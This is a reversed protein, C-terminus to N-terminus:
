VHGKYLHVEGIGELDDAKEFYEQAKDYMELAKKYGRPKQTGTKTQTDILGADTHGRFLYEQGLTKWDGSKELHKLYQDPEDRWKKYRNDQTDLKGEMRELIEQAKDFMEKSREPNGMNQFIYGKDLNVDFQGRLDNVREDSFCDLAKDYWALTEKYNDTRFHIDGINKAMRGQDATENNKEYLNMAKNYAEVANKNDGIVRCANAKSEYALAQGTTNGAKKFFSLAEEYMKIAQNPDGTQLYIDGKRRSAEGQGSLYEQKQEQQKFEDGSSATGPNRDTNSGSERAIISVGLLIFWACVWRVRRKGKNM